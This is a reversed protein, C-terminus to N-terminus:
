VRLINVNPRQFHAVAYMRKNGRDALSVQYNLLFFSQRPSSNLTAWSEKSRLIYNAGESYEAMVTTTNNLPEQTLHHSSSSSHSNSTPSESGSTGERM